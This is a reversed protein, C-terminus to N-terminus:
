LIQALNQGIILNNGLSIKVTLRLKVAYSVRPPAPFHFDYRFVSPPPGNMTVLKSVVDPYFRAVEWAIVSGWDHGVLVASQYGLARITENVDRVLYDIHYEGIAALFNLLTLVRFDECLKLFIRSMKDTICYM